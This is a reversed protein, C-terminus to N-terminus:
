LVMKVLFLAIVMVLVFNGLRVQSEAFEYECGINLLLFVEGLSFAFALAIFGVNIKEAINDFKGDRCDMGFIYFVFWAPFLKAYLPPESGVCINFIYLYVFYVPTILYLLKRNKMRVLIPTLLTLQIMVVIYYLQTSAGGIFVCKIIYKLWIKNGLM